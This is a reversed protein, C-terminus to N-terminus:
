QAATTEAVTTEAAETEAVTTEEAMTEGAGDEAATTEAAMTEGAGDEAATTEAVETEAATTEEAETENATTEEAENGAAATEPAATEGAGTQAVNSANDAMFKMVKYNLAMEDFTEQGYYSVAADVTQGNSEAFAERDADELVLGEREAITNIVLQNKVDDKVSAYIAEQLGPVDMGNAQAMGALSSGYMKAQQEYQKLRTNYRKSVANKNLKFTSDAVVQQLVSTQVQRDAAQKKQKLLDARISEKYEDVTKYDSVGQVFEDDLVADTKEKVANVTVTFVVPQGALSKEQYTEPFTLNLEKKDGKKAGILGDEFGEIFSGSGLTLDFGEASGGEFEVGDKTGVYDINVVDGEAAPRDVETEKPNQSLVQNIRSDVEADTVLVEPMNVKVGKYEGLEVTGLNEKGGETSGSCGTLLSLATMTCLCILALKKMKCIGKRKSMECMGPRSHIKM